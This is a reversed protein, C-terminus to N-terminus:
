KFLLDCGAQLRLNSLCPKASLPDPLQPTAPALEVPAPSHLEHCVTISQQDKKGGLQGWFFFLFPSDSPFPILHSCGFAPIPPPLQSVCELRYTSQM